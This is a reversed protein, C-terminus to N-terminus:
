AYAEQVKEVIEHPRHIMGGMKEFLEVPVKGRVAREVELFVQGYNVEAVFIKRVKDALENFYKTAFPWITRLRAVGVKKGENRLRIAAEKISRSVSGFGVLVCEADDLMFEDVDVIKEANLRIKDNLRRVLLEQMEESVNPYGRADHTLGTMHYAFGKGTPPMPPVLDWKKMQKDFDKPSKMYKRKVLKIKSAPPIKVKEYLHSLVEDTLVIVPVRYQESLNFAKIMLDFCEQPSEPSIAIIEYPGHSGWKAQMVDGQGVLTPLGTSPGGRQVDVIVLPTETMVALGLNEMMLSLGPGSTATMSKAGGWSAGIVAIISGIEDEMQIFTGGVQPLRRSLHEAIESSPTIPYGGFFRCGAAIAGEAIALNGSLYHFGAKQM